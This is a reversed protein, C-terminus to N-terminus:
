KFASELQVADNTSTPEQAFGPLVTSDTVQGNDPHHGPAQYAAPEPISQSIDQTSDQIRVRTQPEPPPAEIQVTPAMPFRRGTARRMLEDEVASISFLLKVGIRLHPISQQRSEELLWKRTVGYHRLARATDALDSLGNPANSMNSRGGLGCATHSNHTVTPAVSGANVVTCLGTVMAGFM